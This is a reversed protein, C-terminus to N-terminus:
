RFNLLCSKEKKTGGLIRTGGPTEVGGLTLWCLLFMNYGFDQKQWPTGSALLRMTWRSHFFNFHILRWEHSCPTILDGGLVQCSGMNTGVLLMTLATVIIAKEDLHLEMGEVDSDDVLHPQLFRSLHPFDPGGNSWTMMNKQVLSCPLSCTMSASRLVLNLNGPWWFVRIQLFHPKVLSLM